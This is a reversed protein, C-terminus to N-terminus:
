GLSKMANIVQLAYDELIIHRLGLDICFETAYLVGMAEVVVPKLNIEKTFSRAAGVCGV